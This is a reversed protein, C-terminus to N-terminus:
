AAIAAEYVERTRRRMEALSFHAAVRARARLGLNERLSRDALRAFAAAFGEVDGFPVVVGADGVAEVNGPADSVVPALGSAMAELLAFSMGERQSPLVFFDAAALARRVDSQQGLLRVAEGGEMRIQERQPGDGAFALVVSARRAAKAATLGGKHADLAGVMVGLTIEPDVGLTKRAASREGAEPLAPLAVGNPIVALRPRAWEGVAAIADAQESAAVCITRSAARIVLGLSAAAGDRAVGELRRLLHLGHLTVVARKMALAPLCAASAVEGHVHMLDVGLAAWQAKLATLPVPAPRDPATTLFAQEFSYGELDALLRVYTEGGGGPHPLVHLVRRM